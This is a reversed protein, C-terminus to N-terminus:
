TCPRRQMGSGNCKVLEGGVPNKSASKPTRFSYSLRPWMTAWQTVRHQGDLDFRARVTWWYNEPRPAGPWLSGSNPALPVELRHFTTTLGRREYVVATKDAAQAPHSPGAIRLDYTVNRVRSMVGTTDVAFDAPRPFPEWRLTPQLSDVTDWLGPYCPALGYIAYLFSRRCSAGEQERSKSGRRGEAPQSESPKLPYLLITEDVIQAALNQYAREYAVRLAEADDAAWESFLRQESRYTYDESFLVRNDSVSVLHTRATMELKLPPNVGIEGQLRLNTVGVELVTTVGERALSRYDVPEDPVSPGHEPLVVVAYNSESKAAAFVRERLTEQIRLQAFAADVRRQAQEIEAQPAAKVAGYIAGGAAVFPTLVPCVFVGVIFAGGGSTLCGAWLYGTAGAAGKGAGSVWGHVPADLAVNPPFRPAAVGITGLQARDREPLNFSPPLSVCGTTLILGALSAACATRVCRLTGSLGALGLRHQLCLERCLRVARLTDVSVSLPNTGAPPRACVLNLSFLSLELSSRM